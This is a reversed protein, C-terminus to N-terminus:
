LPTKESLFLLFTFLLKTEGASGLISTDSDHSLDVNFNPCIGIISGIANSSSEMWFAMDGFSPIIASVFANDFRGLSFQKFM